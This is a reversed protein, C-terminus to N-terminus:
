LIQPPKERHKTRESQTTDGTRVAHSIDLRDCWWKFRAYQDRGLARLPSIYLARIGEKKGKMKELVPLWVAESKGAGTEALVLVHEGALIKPIAIKQIETLDTFKEKLLEVVTTM